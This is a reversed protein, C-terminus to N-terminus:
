AVFSQNPEVYDDLMSLRNVPAVPVVGGLRGPEPAQTINSRRNHSNVMTWGWVYATRAVTKVYEPHMIAGEALVIENPKFNTKCCDKEKPETQTSCAIFSCAFLIALFLQTMEKM